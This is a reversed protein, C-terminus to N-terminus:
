LFAPSTTPLSILWLSAVTYGVMVLVFAFQSYIAQLRSPFLEYAITHAVWVALVHGVLVFAINSGGFWAPLALVIPNATPSLPSFLVGALSPSLSVFFAFYHALHYGAAIAVLPPAFRVALERAGRSTTLRDATVRAALLYAGVFAAFGGLYLAAYLPIPPVGVAAIARVVSAGAETTVFGSFTLEWVLAIAFAIDDVGTVFRNEIPRMGPLRLRLRGDEVTLPAISGYFEFVVSVPDVNRYWQDPGFAVAGLTTLATYVLVATALATPEETVGTTTEAWVLTLLGVVAPWRGLRRPYDLYGNPLRTAVTRTPDLAPWVNGFLYTTMTLGARLGVFVFLVAFNVTPLQPGVFGRYLTLGLLVAGLVAALPAFVHRLREADVLNRGWRHTERIYQRDTVLSALVASAGIAAGGTSMYLWQPVSLAEKSASQLGVAANSAGVHGVFLALVVVGM